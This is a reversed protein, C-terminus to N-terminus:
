TQKSQKTQKNPQNTSNKIEDKIMKLSTNITSTTDHTRRNFFGQSVEV